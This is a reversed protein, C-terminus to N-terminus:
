KPILHCETRVDDGTEAGAALGTQGFEQGFQFSFDTAVRMNWKNPASAVQRAYAECRDFLSRKMEEAFTTLDDLANIVVTVQGSVSGRPLTESITGGILVLYLTGAQGPGPAWGTKIESISDFLVDTVPVSPMQSQAAGSFFLSLVSVVVVRKVVCEGWLRGRHSASAWSTAALIGGLSKFAPSRM